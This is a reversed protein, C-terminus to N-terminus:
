TKVADVEQLAHSSDDVGYLLAAVLRGEEALFNFTSLAHVTSSVEISVGQRQFHPVMWEPLPSPHHGAGILLLEPRPLLMSILQLSEVTLDQVRRPGGFHCLVSPLLLIPAAVMSQENVVFLTDQGGLRVQRLLSQAGQSSIGGRQQLSHVAAGRLVGDVHQVGASRGLVNYQPFVSALSGGGQTSLPRCCRWVWWM